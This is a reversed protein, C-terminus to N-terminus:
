LFSLASLYQVLGAFLFVMMFCSALLFNSWAVAEAEFTAIDLVLADASDEFVSRGHVPLQVLPLHKPPPPKRFVFSRSDGHWLDISGHHSVRWFSIDKSCSFQFAPLFVMWSPRKLDTTPCIHVEKKLCADKALEKTFNSAVSHHYYRLGIVAIHLLLGVDVLLQWGTFYRLGSTFM